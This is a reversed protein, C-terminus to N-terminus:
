RGDFDGDLYRCPCPGENGRLGLERREIRLLLIGNLGALAPVTTGNAEAIDWLTDGPQVILEDGGAVPQAVLALVVAALLAHALTKQMPAFRHM